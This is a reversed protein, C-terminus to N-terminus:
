DDRRRFYNGGEEGLAQTTYPGGEEGLAQTTVPGGEEGLMYTTYSPRRQEWGGYPPRRYWRRQPSRRRPGGGEEGVAQTTYIQATAREGFGLMAAFLAAAGSLVQILFSRRGDARDPVHHPRVAPLLGEFPHQM